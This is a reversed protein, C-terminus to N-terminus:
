RSFFDRGRPNIQSQNRRLVPDPAGFLLSRLRRQVPGPKRAASEYHHRGPSDREPRRSCFGCGGSPATSSYNWNDPPSPTRANRPSSTRKRMKGVVKKHDAILEALMEKPDIFEACERSTHCAPHYTRGALKRVREALDDLVERQRCKEYASCWSHTHM